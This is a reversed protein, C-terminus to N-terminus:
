MQEFIIFLKLNRNHPKTSTVPGISVAKQSCLVIGFFDPRAAYQLTKLVLRSLEVFLVILHWCLFMTPFPSTLKASYVHKLVFSLPRLHYVDSNRFMSCKLYIFMVNQHRESFSQM